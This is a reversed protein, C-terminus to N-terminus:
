KMNELAKIEATLRDYEERIRIPYTLANKINDLITHTVHPIRGRENGLVDVYVRGEQYGKLTFHVLPNLHASAVGQHKKLYATGDFMLSPTRDEKWGYLTYHRAPTM